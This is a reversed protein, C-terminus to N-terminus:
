HVGALQRARLPALRDETQLTLLVAHLVHRYPNNGADLLLIMKKVAPILCCGILDRAEEVSDQVVLSRLMVTIHDPNEKKESGVHSLYEEKMKAAFLLRSRDHGFLHHGVNPCCAATPAFTRLHVERLERLTHAACFERFDALRSSAERNVFSLVEIAADVQGTIRDTPFELVSALLSFIRKGRKEMTEEDTTGHTYIFFLGTSLL